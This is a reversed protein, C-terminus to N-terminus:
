LPFSNSISYIYIYTHIHYSLQYLIQRCHLLGQNSEQTPFIGQLLSLSDVRTNKLKGPPESLLSDAQLTPYQLEIGPNPLDGLSPCPGGQYEQRCFGVSLPVQCAVTRWPTVFLQIYSLLQVCMCCMYSQIVKRYVLFQCLM